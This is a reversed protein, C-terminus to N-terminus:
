ARAAAKGVTFSSAYGSDLLRIPGLDLTSISILFIEGRELVSGLVPNLLDTLLDSPTKNYASSTGVSSPISV